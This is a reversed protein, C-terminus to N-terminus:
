EFVIDLPKTTWTAAEVEIGNEKDISTARAKELTEAGAKTVESIAIDYVHNRLIRAFTRPSAQDIKGAEVIHEGTKTDWVIEFDIRYYTIPDTKNYKGAVILCTANAYDDNDARNVELVYISGISSNSNNEVTYELYGNAETQTDPNDPLSVNEVRFEKDIIPHKKLEANPGRAVCGRQNYKYFYVHTLEFNQVSNDLSVDIRTLARYLPIPEDELSQELDKDIRVPKSEGSMPILRVDPSNNLHAPWRGNTEFVLEKLIDNKNKNSILKGANEANVISQHANAIIVLINNADVDSKLKVTFEKKAYQNQGTGTDDITQPDAQAYYQYFGQKFVLVDIETIKSELEDTMARTRTGGPNVSFRLEIDKGVPPGPPIPTEKQCSTLISLCIFLYYTSNKFKM